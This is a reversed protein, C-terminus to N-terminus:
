RRIEDLAATAGRQLLSWDFGIALARYGRDIMANAQDSTAAVGGLVIRSNRIAAELTM